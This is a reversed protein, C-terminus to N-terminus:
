NIYWVRGFVKSMDLFKSRMELSPFNNFSKYILHVFSLLQNVCSDAKRFGLQNVFKYLSNFILREFIKSSIPFLSVPCYNQILEKNGKEHVLVINSRKWNDPFIEFNLSNCFIISLPKVISSNFIKIMCTLM